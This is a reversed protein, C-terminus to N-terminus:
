LMFFIFGCILLCIFLALYLLNMIGIFITYYITLLSSYNCIPCNQAGSPRVLFNLLFNLFLCHSIISSLYFIDFWLKRQRKRDKSSMTPKMQLCYSVSEIKMQIKPDMRELSSTVWHAQCGLGRNLLAEM